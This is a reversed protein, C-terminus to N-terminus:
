SNKLVFENKNEDFEYFGIDLRKEYEEILKDEQETYERKAVAEVLKPPIRKIIGVSRNKDMFYGRIGYENDVEVLNELAALTFMYENFTKEKGKNKFFDRRAGIPYGKIERSFDIGKEKCIYDIKKRPIKIKNIKTGYEKVFEKIESSSFVHNDIPKRILKKLKENYVCCIPSTDSIPSKGDKVVELSWAGKGSSSLLGSEGKENELHFSVALEMRAISEFVCRGYWVGKEIIKKLPMSLIVKSLTGPTRVLDYFTKNKM